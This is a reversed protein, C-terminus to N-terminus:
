GLFFYLFFRTGTTSADPRLFSFLVFQHIDLPFLFLYNEGPSVIRCINPFTHEFWTKVWFLKKTINIRHQWVFPPIAYHATWIAHFDARFSTVKCMYKSEWVERNQTSVSAWPLYIVGVSELSCYIPLSSHERATWLCM